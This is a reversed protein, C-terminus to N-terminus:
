TWLDVTAYLNIDPNEVFGNTVQLVPIGAQRAKKLAPAIARSDTPWFLLIDVKQRILSEIDSVQKSANFSADTEILKGIRKDQSVAYKVEANMYVLYSSFNLSSGSAGIKWPPKKKFASLNVIRAAKKLYPAPCNAKVKALSVTASRQGTGSATAVFIATVTTAVIVVAVIALLGRKCHM